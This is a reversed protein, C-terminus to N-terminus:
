LAATPNDASTEAADAKRVADQVSCNMIDFSGTTKSQM